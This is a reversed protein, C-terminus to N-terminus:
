YRKGIVTYRLVGIREQGSVALMQGVRWEIGQFRTERPSWPKEGKRLNYDAPQSQLRMQFSVQLPGDGLNSM